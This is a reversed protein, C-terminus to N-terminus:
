RGLMVSGFSGSLSVNADRSFFTDNAFRGQSGADVKIFSTLQFNAKLGAAWTKRARSALGPHPSAVATSWRSAAQMALTKSPAPLCMSWVPCKLRAKPMPAALACCCAAWRFPCHWCTKKM